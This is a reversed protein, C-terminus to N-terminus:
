CGQHLAPIARLSTGKQATAAASTSFMPMVRLFSNRSPMLTNSSLPSSIPCLLSAPTRATLAQVAPRMKAAAGISTMGGSTMCLYDLGIWDM